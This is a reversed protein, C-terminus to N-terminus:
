ESKEKIKQFADPIDKAEQIIKKVEDATVKGDALANVVTLLFEAIEKIPLTYKKVYGYVTAIGLIYSLIASIVMVM